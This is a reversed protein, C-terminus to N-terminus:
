AAKEEALRQMMWEAWQFDMENDIDISREVPMAYAATEPPCWSRTALLEETRIMYVAGNLAYAPPLDQRRSGNLPTEVFPKLLGSEDMQKCLLPHSLAECVSVVAQTDCSFLQAFARDIDVATRLPSTPQLLVIYEPDYDPIRQILHEVADIVPSADGALTKPRLFPVDAEYEFAIQALEVCDTSVFVRDVCRANKAHQISHALLPHGNLNKQNKGPLGKSGGRAPIIACVSPTM